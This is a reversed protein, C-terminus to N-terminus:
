VNEKKISKKYLDILDGLTASYQKWDGIKEDYESWELVADKDGFAYDLNYTRNKSAGKVNKITM